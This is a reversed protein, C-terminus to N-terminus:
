LPKVILDFTLDLHGTDSNTYTLFHPKLRARGDPFALAPLVNMTFSLAFAKQVIELHDGGGATNWIFDTYQRTEDLPFRTVVDGTEGFAQLRATAAHIQENSEFERGEFQGSLNVQYYGPPITLYGDTFGAGIADIEYVFKNNGITDPTCPEMGVTLGQWSGSPPEWTAYKGYGALIDRPLALEDLETVPVEFEVDYSVWLEGCKGVSPSDDTGVHVQGVDYMRQDTGQPIFLSRRIYRWELEDNMTKPDFRVVAGYAPRCEAVPQSDLMAQKSPPPADAADYDALLMIRGSANTAYETVLPRYQFHLKHFKYKEWSKAVKSLWPFITSIGPNVPWSGTEFNESSYINTIYEEKIVRHRM